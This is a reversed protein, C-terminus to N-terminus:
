IGPGKMCSTGLLMFVQELKKLTIPPCHVEFFPIGEGAPTGKKFDGEINKTIKVKGAM